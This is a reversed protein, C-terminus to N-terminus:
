LYGRERLFKSVLDSVQGRLDSLDKKAKESQESKLALLSTFIESKVKIQHADDIAKNIIVRNACLETM